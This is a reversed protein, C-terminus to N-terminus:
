CNDYKYSNNYYYRAVGAQADSRSLSTGIRTYLYSKIKSIGKNMNEAAMKIVDDLIKRSRPDIYGFSEFILPSFQIDEYGNSLKCEEFKGVLFKINLFLFLNVM